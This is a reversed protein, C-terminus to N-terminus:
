ILPQGDSVPVFDSQSDSKNKQLSSEVRVSIIVESFSKQLYIFLSIYNLTYHRLRFSPATLNEAEWFSTFAMRKTFITTRTIAIVPTIMTSHM